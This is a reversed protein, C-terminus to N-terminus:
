SGLPRLLKTLTNQDLLDAKINRVLNQAFKMENKDTALSGRIPDFAFSPMLYLFNDRCQILSAGIQVEDFYAGTINPM